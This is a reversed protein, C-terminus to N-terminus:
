NRINRNIVTPVIVPHVWDDTFLKRLPIALLVNCVFMAFLKIEILIKTKTCNSTKSLVGRFPSVIVYHMTSLLILM